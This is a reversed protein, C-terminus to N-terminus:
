ATYNCCNTTQHTNSQVNAQLIHENYGLLTVTTADLSDSALSMSAVEGFRLSTVPLNTLFSSTHLYHLQQILTLTQPKITDYLQM